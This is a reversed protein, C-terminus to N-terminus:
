TTTEIISTTGRAVNSQILLKFEDYIKGILRPHVLKIKRKDFEEQYLEDEVSVASFGDDLTQNNIYKYLMTKDIGVESVVTSCLGSNNNITTHPIKTANEPGGPIPGGGTATTYPSINSNGYKFKAVGRPITTVKKATFITSGNGCGTGTTQVFPFLSGNQGEIKRVAFVTDGDSLSFSPGFRNVNIKMLERDFSEIMAYNGEVGTVGDPCGQAATCSEGKVLYDGKKFERNEDIFISRGNFFSNSLFRRQTKSQSNPWETEVDVINNSLLVLWFWKPDGYIKFAVDDPREGDEVIYEIFNRLDKKTQDTFAVRRFLDTVQLNVAGTTGQNFIYDFKPLNKLYM